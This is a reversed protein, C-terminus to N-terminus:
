NWKNVQTSRKQMMLLIWITLHCLTTNKSHGNHACIFSIENLHIKGSKQLLYNQPQRATWMKNYCKKCNTGSLFTSTNSHIIHRTQDWIGSWYTKKWICKGFTKLQTLNRDAVKNCKSFITCSRATLTGSNHYLSKFPFKANHLFNHHTNHAQTHVLVLSRWYVSPFSVLYRIILLSSVSLNVGHPLTRRSFSITRQSVSLSEM